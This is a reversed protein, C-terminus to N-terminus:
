FRSRLCVSVHLHYTCDLTGPIHLMRYKVWGAELCAPTVWWECCAFGFRTVPPSPPLWGLCVWWVLPTPVMTHPLPPTSPLFPM